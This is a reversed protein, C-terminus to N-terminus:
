SGSSGSVLRVKPRHTREMLVALILDSFADPIRSISLILAVVGAAVGAYDTYFYTIVGMLTGIAVNCALDGCGYSFKEITKLPGPIRRHPNNTTQNM